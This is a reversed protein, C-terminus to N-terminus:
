YLHSGSSSINDNDTTASIETPEGLIAKRTNYHRLHGKKCYCSCCIFEGENQGRYWQSTEKNKCICCITNSRDIRPRHERAHKSQITLKLNEIRNDKKNGNIHHVVEDPKLYRGVYQEM